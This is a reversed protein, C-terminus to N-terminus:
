QVKIIERQYEEILRKPNKLKVKMEAVAVNLNETAKDTLGEKFDWEYGKIHLLYAAPSKEYLERCLKIIYGPSAAHTTFAINASSDLPTLLFDEIAETSADAFIVLDYESITASDEINLQYNSDFDIGKVGVKKSWEELFNVLENGLGDDRRGPNGYGYILIKYEM